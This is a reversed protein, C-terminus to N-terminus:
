VSHQLFFSTLELPPVEHNSLTAIELPPDAGHSRSAADVPTTTDGGVPKFPLVGTEAGTTELDLCNHHNNTQIPNSTMKVRAWSPIAPDQHTEDIHLGM